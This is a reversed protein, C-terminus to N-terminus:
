KDNNRILTLQLLVHLKNVLIKGELQNPSAGDALTTDRWFKWWLYSALVVGWYYEPKVVFEKCTGFFCLSM